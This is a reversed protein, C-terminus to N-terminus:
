VVPIIIKCITKIVLNTLVTDNFIIEPFKMVGNEDGKLAVSLRKDM